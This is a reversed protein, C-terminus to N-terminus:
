AAQSVAAGFAAVQALNAKMARNLDVHLARIEEATWDLAAIRHTLRVIDAAMADRRAAYDAPRRAVIAEALLEADRFADSIGHATIPDRFLGADGVLAWGPGIPKRIHGPSGRFAVARTAPAGALTAALEPFHRGLLAL